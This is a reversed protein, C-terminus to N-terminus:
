LERSRGGASSLSQARSAALGNCSSVMGLRPRGRRRAVRRPARAGIRGPDYALGDPYEGTPARRLVEGTRSDITLMERDDTASAFVRHLQPVAIVGPVGPATITRVVRRQRVDFALLEHADMHAIFLQNTVPDLSTYDFRNSPGPLAVNAVSRLPLGHVAMAVTAATLAAVTALMGTLAM